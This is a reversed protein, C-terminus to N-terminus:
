RSARASTKTRVRTRAKTRARARAKYASLPLAELVGHEDGAAKAAGRHLGCEAQLAQEQRAAGPRAGGLGSPACRRLRPHVSGRPAELTKDQLPKLTSCRTRVRMDRTESELYTNIPLQAYEARFISCAAGFVADFQHFGRSICARRRLKCPKFYFRYLIYM